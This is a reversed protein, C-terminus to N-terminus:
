HGSALPLTVRESGKTLVVTKPTIASVRYAGVRDGRHVVWSNAGSSLIASSSAGAMLIGSVVFGGALPAQRPPTPGGTGKPAGGGSIELSIFPDRQPKELTVPPPKELEAAGPPSPPPQVAITVPKQVQGKTQPVCGAVLLPLAAMLICRVLHERM